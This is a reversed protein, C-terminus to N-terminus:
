DVITGDMRCWEIRVEGDQMCEKISFYRLNIHKTKKGSSVCGNNEILIAIQNDQYIITDNVGYGQANIFYNEHSTPIFDDIIINIM